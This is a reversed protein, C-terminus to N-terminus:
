DPSFGEQALSTRLQAANEFRISSWGAQQAAAVNVARDDVFVCESPSVQLVNTVLQFASPDPKRIGTYCSTFFASVVERLGFADIRHQNFEAGENNLAVMRYRGARALERAFELVPQNARSLSFLHTTFEARSFPRPVYFVTEDLFQDLSSRGEEYKPASREVRQDLETLDIAFRKATEEREERDWGNSLLVGGVDWVLVRSEKM